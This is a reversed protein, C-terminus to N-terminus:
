RLVTRALDTHPGGPYRALYDEAARRAAVANGSKHLAELLRGSAERSLSGSPQERLSTRFWEAAQAYARNQDFAIKGLLFAAAAARPDGPYRKRLALLAHNARDTRGSLRAGDGLALLEPATAAACAQEFGSEEAAAFAKRLSGSRVLERWEPARPEPAASREPRLAGDPESVPRGPAAPAAASSPEAAAAPQREPGSTLEMRREGVLVRLTEGARVAREAGVVSGAVAVSGETVTVSFEETAASWRLDFRTGTVRVTLPGAIVRWASRQHHVVDAHLAGNELAISAGRDDVAVVRVRSSREVRLATGDSFRIPVAREKSAAVWTQLSGAAGDATFALPRPGRTVVFVAVLVAALTAAAAFLYLAPRRRIQAKRLAADLYGRRAQEIAAAREAGYAELAGSARKGLDELPSLTRGM